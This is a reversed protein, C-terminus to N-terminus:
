YDDDTPTSNDYGITNDTAALTMGESFPQLLGFVYGDTIGYKGTINDHWRKLTKDATHWSKSNCMNRVKPMQYGPLFHRTNINQYMKKEGNKETITVHANCVVTATLNDEEGANLLDTLEKVNGRFLKNTDLLIDVTSWDIDKNNSNKGSLWAKMFAYLDAEGQLAKRYRKTIPDGSSDTVDVFSKSGKDWKQVNTFMPKLDRESSAWTSDGSQSVYQIKGEKSVSEKDTINFRINYKKGTDVDNGWFVITTRTKGDKDEGIYEIEKSDEKPTSGLYAHLQELTPNIKEIRMELMGVELQSQQQSAEKTEIKM